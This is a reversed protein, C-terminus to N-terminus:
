RVEGETLIAQGDVLESGAPAEPLEILSQGDVNDTLFTSFAMVSDTGMGWVINDDAWLASDNAGWVVNDDFGWVINDDTMGWVINDDMGWVINDDMLTGWLASDDMGWVINDDLM